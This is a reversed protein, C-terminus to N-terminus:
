WRLRAANIPLVRARSAIRADKWSSPVKVWTWCSVTTAGRRIDSTFALAEAKGGRRM